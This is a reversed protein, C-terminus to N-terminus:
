SQPKARNLRRVSQVVADSRMDKFLMAEEQEM